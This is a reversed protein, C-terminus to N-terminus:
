PRRAAISGGAGGLDAETLTLGAFTRAVPMARDKMVQREKQRLKRVRSGFKIRDAGSLRRWIAWAQDLDSM